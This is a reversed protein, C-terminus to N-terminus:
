SSSNIIKGCSLKKLNDSINADIRLLIPKFKNQFILTVVLIAATVFPYSVKTLRDFLGYTVKRVVIFITEVIFYYRDINHCQQDEYSKIFQNPTIM